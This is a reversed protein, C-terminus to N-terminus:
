KKRSRPRGRSPRESPLETWEEPVAHRALDDAYNWFLVSEEGPRWSFFARRDNVLTPFGIMGLSPELLTLGLVELEALLTRMENQAVSIDEELQYRRSRQPWNLTRRDRELQAFEPEMRTLQGYYEIVDRAIRGVLPLMARSAHWTM